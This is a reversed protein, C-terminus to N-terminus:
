FQDNPAICCGGSVSQEVPQRRFVRLGDFSAIPRYQSWADKFKADLSSLTSIYGIGGREDVVALDPRGALFDEVIWSHVPWERPLHGDIRRRWIEGELAWMSDFRLSWVVGTANVVPFGLAIWQSFAIYSKARESRILAELKQETPTRFGVTTAIQDQWRSFAALGIGSLGIIVSTAIFLASCRGIGPRPLASAWYALVLTTFITAPLLHYFWSKEQLLWVLISGAAFVTLTLPLTSDSVKRRYIWWLMVAVVSGLLAGRGSTLLQTWSADSFGYLALGLPIASRFYAPHLALVAAIYVLMTVAVSLTMRRLLRLGHVRGVIELLAFAVLFQPKVACGLGALIGAITEEVPRPHTGDLSRAFICLYPLAAAAFLHERQGFELGPLVLLVTGIVAFLTVPTTGLPGFGRLLKACWGASGLMCATFFPVAVVKATVGLAAATAVPLALIWVIMPPNVEILDVYLQRGALWQQAVYLLWATDDKLPSGLTTFLVFGLAGLLLVLALGLRAPHQRITLERRADITAEYTM